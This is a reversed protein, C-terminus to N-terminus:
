NVRSWTQKLCILGGLVCGGVKLNNGSLKGKGSYTKGNSPKWAKGKYTGDGQAIMDFVANKGVVDSSVKQGNEFKQLFKGCFGAGCTAMKVHYYVGDDPQTKWVGEIPDAWAAGAFGLAAVAAALIIRM